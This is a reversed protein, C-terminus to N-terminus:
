LWRRLLDGRTSALQQSTTPDGNLPSSPSLCLMSQDVGCLLSRGWSGLSSTSQPLIQWGQKNPSAQSPPRAPLSGALIQQSIQSNIIGM